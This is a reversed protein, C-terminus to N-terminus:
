DQELPLLEELPTHILEGWYFVFSKWSNKLNYLMVREFEQFLRRITIGLQMNTQISKTVIDDFFKVLRDVADERGHVNFGRVLLEALTFTALDEASNERALDELIYRLSEFAWTDKIKPYNEGYTHVFQKFSVLGFNVLVNMCIGLIAINYEDISGISEDIFHKWFRTHNKLFKVERVLSIKIKMETECHSPRSVLVEEDSMYGIKLLHPVPDTHRCVECYWELEYPRKRNYVLKNQWLSTAHHKKIRSLLESQVEVLDQQIQVVLPRKLDQLVDKLYTQVERPLKYEQDSSMQQCQECFWWQQIGIWEGKAGKRHYPRKMARDCDPCRPKM